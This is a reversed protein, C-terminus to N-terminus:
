LINAMVAVIALVNELMSLNRDITEWSFIGVQLFKSLRVKKLVVQV